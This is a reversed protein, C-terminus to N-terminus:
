AAKDFMILIERWIFNWTDWHLLENSITMFDLISQATVM